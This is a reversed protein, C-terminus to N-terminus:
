QNGLNNPKLFRITLEEYITQLKSLKKEDRKEKKKLKLKEHYYNKFYEPPPKNKSFKMTTKNKEYYEKRYEKSPTTQKRIYKRLETIDEYLSVDINYKKISQLTRYHTIETLLM